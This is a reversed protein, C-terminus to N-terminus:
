PPCCEMKVYEVVKEEGVVLMVAEIGLIRVAM